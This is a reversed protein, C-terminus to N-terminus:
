LVGDELGVPGGIRANLHIPLQPTSLRYGAHAIRGPAPKIDWPPMRREMRAALQYAAALLVDRPDSVDLGMRALLLHLPGTAAYDPLRRPLAPTPDHTM